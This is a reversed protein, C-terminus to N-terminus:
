TDKPDVVRLSSRRMTTNMAAKMEGQRRAILARLLRKAQVISTSLAETAKEPSEKTLALTGHRVHRHVHFGLDGVLVLLKMDEDSMKKATYKIM